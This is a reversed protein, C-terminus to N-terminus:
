DAQSVTAVFARVHPALEAAARSADRHTMGPLEVLVARALQAACAQCASLHREDATGMYLLCLLALSALDPRFDYTHEHMWRRQAALARIDTARLRAEDQPALPGFRETWTAVILDVGETAAQEYLALTPDPQRADGHHYAGAGGLILCRLREAYHRALMWGLYAGLSYGLLHARRIGLDDLVAIVDDALLRLEYGAPTHPASSEGSGRGDILILQCVDQLMDVCGHRRWTSRTDSWGHLMVLPPGSGALEYAIQIGNHTAIPM